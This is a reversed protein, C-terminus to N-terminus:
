AHRATATGSQRKEPAVQSFSRNIQEYKAREGPSLSPRLEAAARELDEWAVAAGGEGGGGGDNGEDRGGGSPAPRPAPRPADLLRHVAALQANHALATLDAGSCGDLGAALRHVDVDGELRLKSVLQRLV